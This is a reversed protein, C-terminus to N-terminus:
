NTVSKATTHSKDLTELQLEEFKFTIGPYKKQWGNYEAIFYLPELIVDRYPQQLAVYINFAIRKDSGSGADKGRGPGQGVLSPDVALARMLHQSAEQSDELYAGEKLKDEIPIIKWGPLEKGDRDFGVDVLISKGANEAGALMANIEDLKNKRKESQKEASLSDWDPYRAPWYNLPICIMYKITVQFQMIAKKFKPIEAAIEAWSSTRFGDWASLQYYSKGPSPYSIPYVFRKQKSKKVTEVAEFSYPDIVDIEITTKDTIKVLPWNASIYCKKIVGDDGMKAWRCFSADQTGLYAIKDGGASKILEPFVNWFWFFDNSAERMYRKFTRHNLFEKIEIDNIEEDLWKKAETDYVPRFAKVERGQLARAKWDLLAPLETSKEALAIIQQPFDNSSGWSAVEATDTKDSEPKPSRPAVVPSEAQMFVGVQHDPFLMISESVEIGGTM